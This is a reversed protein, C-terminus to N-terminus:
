RSCFETSIAWRIFANEGQNQAQTWSGRRELMKFKMPTM